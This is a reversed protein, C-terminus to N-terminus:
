TVLVCTKVQGHHFTNTAQSRIIELPSSAVDDLRDRSRSGTDQVGSSPHLDCGFIYLLNATFYIIYVACQIYIYIYLIRSVKHRLFMLLCRGLSPDDGIM